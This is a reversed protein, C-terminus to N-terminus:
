IEFSIEYVSKSFFDFYIDILDGFFTKKKGEEEPSPMFLLQM